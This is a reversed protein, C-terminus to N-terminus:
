RSRKLNSFRQLCKFYITAWLGLCKNANKSTQSHGESTLCQMRGQLLNFRQLCHQGFIHQLHHPNHFFSVHQILLYLSFWISDIFVYIWDQFCHQIYFWTSRVQVHGVKPVYFHRACCWDELGKHWPIPQPFQPHHGLRDFGRGAQWLCQGEPNSHLSVLMPGWSNQLTTQLNNQNGQSGM